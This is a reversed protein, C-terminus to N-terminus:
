VHYIKRCLTRWRNTGMNYLHGAILQYDIAIVVMNKNQVINFEQPAVCRSLYEIIDVFYEDVVQVLFLQADPFNEELNTYEEGNTVSSLHDSGVNLKGSKFIV